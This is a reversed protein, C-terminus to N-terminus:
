RTGEGNWSQTCVPKRGHFFEAILMFEIKENKKGSIRGAVSFRGAQGQIATKGRKAKAQLRGKARAKGVMHPIGEIM